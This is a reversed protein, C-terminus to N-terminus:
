PRWRRRKRRRRVGSDTRSQRVHWSTVSVAALAPSAALVTIHLQAHFAESCFLARFVTLSLSLSLFLACLLSLSLAVVVVCASLCRSFAHSIHLLLLTVFSTKRDAM